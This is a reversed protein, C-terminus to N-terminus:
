FDGATTVVITNEVAGCLIPTIDNPTKIRDDRITTPKAGLASAAVGVITWDAELAAVVTL